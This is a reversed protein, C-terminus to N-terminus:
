AALRGFTRGVWGDFWEIDLEGRPHLLRGNADWITAIISSVRGKPTGDHTQYEFLASHYYAWHALTKTLTCSKESAAVHKEEILIGQKYDTSCIIRDIDLVHLSGPPWRHRLFRGMGTEDEPNSRWHQSM